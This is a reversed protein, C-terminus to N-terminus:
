EVEYGVILCTAFELPSLKQLVKFSDIYIEKMLVGNGSFGKCHKILNYQKSWDDKDLNNLATAVEKSVKVRKLDERGTGM